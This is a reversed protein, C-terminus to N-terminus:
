GVGGGWRKRWRTCARDVCCLRQTLVFDRVYIVDCACIDCWVCMDCAYIDRVYIVDCACMVHMYIVCM